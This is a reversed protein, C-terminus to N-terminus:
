RAIEKSSTISGTRLIDLFPIVEGELAQDISAISLSTINFCSSRINEPIAQDPVLTRDLTYMVRLSQQLLAPLMETSIKNM